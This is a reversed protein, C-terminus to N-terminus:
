LGRVVAFAISFGWRFLGGIAASDPLGRSKNAAITWEALNKDVNAVQRFSRLSPVFSFSCFIFYRVIERLDSLLDENSRKAWASKNAAVREIAAKVQAEPTERVSM